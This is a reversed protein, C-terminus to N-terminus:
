CRSNGYGRNQYKTGQHRLVFPKGKCLPYLEGGEVAHSAVSLQRHGEETIDGKQKQGNHADHELSM